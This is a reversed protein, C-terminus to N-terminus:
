CWAEVRSSARRVSAVQQLNMHVGSGTPCEVTMKDGYFYHYRNLAEVLLWNCPMWVPGRWNSNGGYIPLASEGPSYDVRYEEEGKRFIFPEAKHQRGFPSKPPRFIAIVIGRCRHCQM